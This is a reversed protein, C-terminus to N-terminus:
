VTGKEGKTNSLTSIIELLPFGQATDSHMYQNDGGRLTCIAMLGTHTHRNDSVCFAVASVSQLYNQKLVLSLTWTEMLMVSYLDSHKRGRRTKAQITKNNQQKLKNQEYCLRLM